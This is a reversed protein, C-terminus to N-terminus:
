FGNQPTLISLNQSASGPDPISLIRIRSPFFESRPGPILM